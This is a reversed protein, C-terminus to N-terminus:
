TAPFLRELVVAVGDDDNGATIEDAAALVAEHANAMAVSHAAWTFMPIDNPMDGFAITQAAKVGLRHAAVALGTAKTLGLPLLEVIGPGAVIVGVLDGAVQRGIRALEDDSLQPHQIYLKSIPATLLESGDVRVLPLEAGIQLTYGPGALVAGNLGDQDAAVALPGTEAEIKALALAALRRDLTLSTLLQHSGADYVQAGQACVALGTYGIEDFVPRAWNASRGTVIIHLAGAAVATALAARTRDSVTEASNLLTGDLDTAVLRFPPGGGPSVDTRHSTTSM